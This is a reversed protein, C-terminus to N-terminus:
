LRFATALRTGVLFLIQSCSASVEKSFLACAIMACYPFSSLVVPAYVNLVRQDIAVGVCAEPSLYVSQDSGFLRAMADINHWSKLNRGSACLYDLRTV